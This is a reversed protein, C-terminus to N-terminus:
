GGAIAGLIRFVETGDRVAEPLPADPPEHSLDQGCAIYRMYARRRGTAQDRITGRLVPWRAELADVVAAATVAGAGDARGTGDVGVAGSSADRVVEVTVDDDVGTLDRLHAPLRVRVSHVGSM